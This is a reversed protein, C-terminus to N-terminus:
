VHARGIQDIAVLIYNHGDNEKNYAQMDMLDAEWNYDKYLSIIRNRVFKFRRDKHLTYTNQKKLFDRVQEETVNHHKSAERFLRQIGGFSGASKPDYYIKNLVAEM